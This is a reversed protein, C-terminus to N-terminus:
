YKLEGEKLKTLKFDCYPCLIGVNDENFFENYCNECYFMEETEIDYINNYDNDHDWYDDFHYRYKRGAPLTWKTKYDHDRIIKCAKDITDNMDNVNLYEHLTHEHYYGISLNVSSVNYMTGLISIDSFTGINEKFGYSEIHKIFTNDEGNYFVCENNNHRDLEIFYSINNLTDSYSSCSSAGIGGSEEFDTFLLIPKKDEPMMSYIKLMAYVGARDDAGLGNPSFMINEKVDHYLKKNKVENHVTDIHAVLCINHKINNDPIILWSKGNHKTSVKNLQKILNKRKIKLLSKLDASIPM